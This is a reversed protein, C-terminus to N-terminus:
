AAQESCDSDGVAVNVKVGAGGKRMLECCGHGCNTGLPDSRAMETFYDHSRDRPLREIRYM